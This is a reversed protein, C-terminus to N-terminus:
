GNNVLKEQANKNSLLAIGLWFSPAFAIAPIMFPFYYNQFGTQLCMICFVIGVFCFINLLAFQWKKIESKKQFIYTLMIAIVYLSIRALTRWLIQFDFQTIFDNPNKGNAIWKEMEHNLTFSSYNDWLNLLTALILVVLVVKSLISKIPLIIKLGAVFLVITAFILTGYRFKEIGSSTLLDSGMRPQGLHLPIMAVFGIAFLLWATSSNSKKFASILGIGVAVIGLCILIYKLFTQNEIQTEPAFINETIPLFPLLLLITIAITRLITM